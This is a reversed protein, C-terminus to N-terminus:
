RDLESQIWRQSKAAILMPNREEPEDEWSYWGTYGSAKLYAIVEALNAAGKGLPCTEHAGAHLVDKVHVHRVLSGLNKMETLVDAGQTVLWGTDVAVGIM